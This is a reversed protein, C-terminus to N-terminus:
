NSNVIIVPWGPEANIYTVSHNQGTMRWPKTQEARTTRSTKFMKRKNIEVTDANPVNSVEVSDGGATAKQVVRVIYTVNLQCSRKREARILGYKWGWGKDGTRLYTGSELLLMERHIADNDMSIKSDSKQGQTNRPCCWWFRPVQDDILVFGNTQCEM